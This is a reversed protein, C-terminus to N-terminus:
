ETVLVAPVAELEFGASIRRCDRVNEPDPDIDAVARFITRAGETDSENLMAELATLEVLRELSFSGGIQARLHSADVAEIGIAGLRMEEFPLLFVPGGDLPEATVADGWAAFGSVLARTRAVTHARLTQGEARRGEADLAIDEGAEVLLLELDVFTDAEDVIAGVRIAWRLRGAAMASDLDGDFTRGPVLDEATSILAQGSNDVGTFPADLSPFLDNVIEECTPPDSREDEDSDFHDLDFGAAEGMVAPPFSVDRVLWTTNELALFLPRAPDCEPCTPEPPPSCASLVCIWAILLWRM